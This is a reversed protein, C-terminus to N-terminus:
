PNRPGPPTDLIARAVRDHVGRRLPVHRSNERTPNVRNTLLVVALEQTPDIWLSTGTYGTHGFSRASFYDGASSRPSPTDWGLARTSAESQRRTFRDVSGQAFISVPTFRPRNCPLGSVPDATCPAAVGRDLMMQAFVALDRASSFLGAHGAVGGIAHANEDHVEGHVHYGRYVADFETTAVRDWLSPAPTFDTDAMGLPRWVEDRLFADLPQGSVAEVIFSATMLGIDSYVTTDGPPHDLPLSGIADEYAERGQMELFFRRFPVLGARHLLLDRITVRSKAADGDGWWPLYDVVLDDLAILGRQALIMVASTTGVVKTLSAMDFISAPTVPPADPDWDLRGYGRLRVLQGQRLVALAAGSAASDALADLIFDDLAALSDASLGVRAPDVERPSAVTPGLASGATCFVDALDALNDARDPPPPALATAPHHTCSPLAPGPRWRGPGGAPREQGGEEAADGRDAGPIFGAERLPDPREEDEEALQGSAARELGEGLGHLPPISIPLRGTIPALGAVARAAARQSVEWGGWAVLYTGTAPFASLLYPSGFSLVAVGAGDMRDLREVFARFEPPVGVSGTGSRPPVYAGVLVADATRAAHLLSDYTAWPTDPGVRATAVRGAHSRLSADFTRGALLADPRAYTVSLVNAGRTLPFVRDRDRVLTLSATAARDAVARHEATGVREAVATPDVRRERHLGLRAKAELLRRASADIRERSVRGSEVAATVADVTVGIGDPALIVDSGAELSLVAAEGAGYGETIAGMRLADTFLIGGFGMEGRLLDTMLEPSMTAPRNDGLVGPVAVHATMVADVGEDVAVQFPFLEVRDLRDRDAGIVPLEIHSDTRTDGHGPFHKATSLAGGARAGRIFATGLRGVAQPDEGFSRVNIVPNDPNSNVDLVPAFLWHVGVARAEVATIRGYEFALDDDGAAGFAMTPPFSTGGGQPLLSPLAYSHHIRMGPGGNEFDSTVLLPVRARAQLRNLKAVYADPVGISISVGGLGQEVWGLLDQFEPDSESAYGGPIWPIVLQAVAERLTLTALTEDVWRRADADLEATTLPPTAVGATGGFGIPLPRSLGCAVLGLTAAAIFAAGAARRM